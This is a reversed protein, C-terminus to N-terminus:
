INVNLLPCNKWDSDDFHWWEHTAQIFGHKKMVQTLLNRNNITAAPLQMFKQHAKESFDDFDTPMPLENGASTVLTVDVSCGRTHRSGQAPPAVYRPDAVLRWFNKQTAPSRYGDWIKLGLGQKELEKQVADLKLATAKKLYCLATRYIKKGTFNNTGAYRLDVLIHPNITKINVLCGRAIKNKPHKLYRSHDSTHPIDTPNANFFTAASNSCTAGHLMPMYASLLLTYVARIRVLKKQRNM